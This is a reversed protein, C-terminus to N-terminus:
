DTLFRKLKSLINAPKHRDTLEKKWNIDFKGNIDKRLSDPPLPVLIHFPPYKVTQYNLDVDYRLRRSCLLHIVTLNKKSEYVTTNIWLPVSNNHSLLNVVQDFTLLKGAHCNLITLNKKEFENLGNHFDIGSPQILFKFTESIDNYCHQRTIDLLLKLSLDLHHKFKSVDM